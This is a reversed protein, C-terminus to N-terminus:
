EVMHGETVRAVYIYLIFFFLECSMDLINFGISCYACDNIFHDAHM